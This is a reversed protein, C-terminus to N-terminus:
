PLHHPYLQAIFHMALRLFTFSPGGYVVMAVAPFSSLSYILPSLPATPSLIYLLKNLFDYKVAEELTQMVELAVM